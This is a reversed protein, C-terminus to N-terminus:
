KHKSFANHGCEHAIFWIGTCVCGVVIWYIPWALHYYM